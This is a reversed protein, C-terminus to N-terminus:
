IRRRMSLRGISGKALSRFASSTSMSLLLSMAVCGAGSILGAVNGLAANTVPLTILLIALQALMPFITSRSAVHSLHVLLLYEFMARIVTAVAAGLLGFQQISFWLLLFYATLQIASVRAAVAASVQSQVLIRTVDAQGGLWMGIVLVRAIPASVSALGEGVWVQLFPGVAIMSIIAIPTFIANLLGLSQQTITRAQEGNSASLRPFLSRGLAISVINLRMVLNKPVTYFAVLRPGSMAGVVTRDASDTVLTLITTAFMWGGFNALGKIVAWKPLRVSGADLVGAVERFMRIATLSRILLASALLVDVTAGFLSMCVLPLVQFLIIGSTQITNFAAFREAGSLAAASVALGNAVPVALSLWPLGALLEPRLTSGPDMFYNIYARGSAYVLIGVLTGIALNSWLATWVLDRCFDLENRAYARSLQNQVAVSLAFGLVSFYDILVWIFAVAGFRELGLTHIYLPVTALSVFTPLVLGVLNIATNKYIAKDM